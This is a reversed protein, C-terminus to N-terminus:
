KADPQEIWKQVSAQPGKPEVYVTNTPHDKGNIIWIAKNPVRIVGSNKDLYKMLDSTNKVSATILMRLHKGHWKQPENAVWDATNNDTTLKGASTVDKNNDDLDYVKVEKLDLVDELTDKLELTKIDEGDPAAVDVTYKYPANYDVQISDGKGNGDTSVAKTQSTQTFPINTTTKNSDSTGNSTTVKADNYIVAQDNHKPDQHDALSVGTKVTGDFTIKYQQLYFDESTLSDNKAVVSLKNGDDVNVTFMYTVDQNARNYIHVNSIDLDKDLQDTIMYSDYKFEKRVDPVNHTIQYHYTEYRDKLIDHNVSKDTGIESPVNTGENSDSVYKKPTDPKDPAIAKTGYKLYAHNFATAYVSNVINSIPYEKDADPDYQGIMNWYKSTNELEKQEDIAASGTNQGYVWNIVFSSANSYAATFSGKKDASTLTGENHGASDTVGKNHQKADSYIYQTGNMKKPSLWTNGNDTDRDGYILQDVNSMTTPEIGVWQNGDIDDFTWAGTMKVPKHTDHDLYDLRYKVAGMGPTFIEFDDKGFAIYATAEPIKTDANGEGTTDSWVYNKIQWDMVTLKIDITHGEYTGVNSYYVGVKGKWKDNTSLVRGDEGYSTQFAYWHKTDNETHSSSTAWDNETAGFPKVQTIGKTVKAAFGYQGPVKNGKANIGKSLNVMEANDAYVSRSSVNIGVIVATSAMLFAGLKKASLEKKLKSKLAKM